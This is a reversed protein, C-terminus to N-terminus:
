PFAPSFYHFDVLMNGFSMSTRMQVLSKSNAFDRTDHFAAIRKAVPEKEVFFAARETKEKVAVM